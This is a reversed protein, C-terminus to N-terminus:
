KDTNKKNISLVERIDDCVPKDNCTSCDSVCDIDVGRVKWTQKVLERTIKQVQVAIEGMKKIDDKGSTVLIM